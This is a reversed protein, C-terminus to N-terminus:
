DEEGGIVVDPSNQSELLLTNILLEGTPKKESSAESRTDLSNDKNMVMQLVFFLLVVAVMIIAGFGFFNSVKTPSKSSSKGAM